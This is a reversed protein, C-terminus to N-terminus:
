NSWCSIVSADTLLPLDSVRCEPVAIMAELLARCHGAMREITSRDFLDTAYEFTGELGEPSEQLYLTLDLRTVGHDVEVPTVTLGPGHLGRLPTRLVLMVQFLPNRSLDREARLDDM